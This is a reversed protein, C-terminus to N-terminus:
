VTNNIWFSKESGYGSGVKLNIEYGDGSGVHVKEVIRLM